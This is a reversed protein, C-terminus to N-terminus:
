RSTGCRMLSLQLDIRGVPDVECPQFSTQVAEIMFSQVPETKGNVHRLLGPMRNIRAIRFRVNGQQAAHKLSRFAGAARTAVHLIRGISPVKDGGARIREASPSMTTNMAEHDGTSAAQMFRTLLDRRKQQCVEYRPRGKRVRVGARSVIQRCAAASNGLISAIEKYDMDFAQWILFAAREQPSLREPM